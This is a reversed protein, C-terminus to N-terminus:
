DRRGFQFELRSKYVVRNGAPTAGMGVGTSWTFREGFHFDAGPLFVHIQDNLPLFNPLPGAASYYELSPVFRKNAEYGIRFAPEFNWGERTGPGHLARVFVPNFDIQVRGFSKELIPRIEVRRSNEEFLTRQFSFETVLGLKVPLHWSQPAYFHPLLRWGAYELGRGPVRGALLMFGISFSETVGATLEHTLHLQNNTPALPGTSFKAGIGVYNLHQELTFQGRKLTEYEYIHIEFPDQGRACGGLLLIAACTLRVM